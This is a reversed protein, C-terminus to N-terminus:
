SGSKQVEREVENELYNEPVILRTKRQPNKTVKEDNEFWGGLDEVAFDYELLSHDPVRTVEGAVRREQIAECM